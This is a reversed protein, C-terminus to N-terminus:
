YRHLITSSILILDEVMRHARQAPYVGYYLEESSLPHIKKKLVIKKEDEIISQQATQQKNDRRTLPVSAM